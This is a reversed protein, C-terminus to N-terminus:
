ITKLMKPLCNLVTKFDTMMKKAFLNSINCNKVFRWLFNYYSIIIIVKLFAQLRKSVSCIYKHRFDIKYTFKMLKDDNEGIAM